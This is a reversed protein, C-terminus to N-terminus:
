VKHNNQKFYDTVSCCVQGYTIDNPDILLNERLHIVKFLLLVSFLYIFPTKIFNNQAVETHKYIHSNLAFFYVHCGLM